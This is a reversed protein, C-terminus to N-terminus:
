IRPKMSLLAIMRLSVRKLIGIPFSNCGILMPKCEKRTMRQRVKAFSGYNQRKPEILPAGRGRRKFVRYDEWQHLQWADVVDTWEALLFAPSHGTGGVEQDAETLWQRM